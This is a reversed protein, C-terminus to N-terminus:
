RNFNIIEQRRGRLTFDGAFFLIDGSPFSKYKFTKNHTDSVAVCRITKQVSGNKIDLNFKEM